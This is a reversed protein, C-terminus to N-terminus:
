FKEMFISENEKFEYHEYGDEALFSCVPALMKLLLLLNHNLVYQCTQREVSDVDYEYLYSKTELDLYQSSFDSVWNMIEDFVKRFNKDEYYKLCRKYTQECSMLALNEKKSLKTDHNKKFGYLNGLLYKITNRLKTYNDSCTKLVNEGVQVDDEYNVFAAWMRLVDTNYKQCVQKPDVVNGLSKSMKKGNQDLVFGHSLLNKYPSKGDLAVSVLLSSQFFGRFQDTGEFYYDAPQNNLVSYFSCGSDFWVDMTHECKLLGRNKWNDPLLEDATKNFWVDAGFKEFLSKLHNLLDKDFVPKNNDLFVALPFGWKRQRSLCWRDRTKLMNTFRTEWRKEMKVGKLVELCDQRVQTLDMFFQETLKYYVPGGTRWDHPYSHEYEESKFLMGKEEMLKVTSKSCVDLCFEGKVKGGNDTLDEGSLGNAKCVNFDEEGHAPCLHVLGTGSDSKVFDDCVVVGVENNLLNTYTWDKMEEGTYSELLEPNDLLHLCNESVYYYENNSFVKLYNLGPNVCVAKNGWTTWPQTTWVLLYAKEHTLEFKFYASLDKRTKYELEFDALVTQSSPSWYVPRWEKFLLNKNGLNYLVELQKAEYEYNMTQYGNNWNALLGLEKFEERQVNTFNNAWEQCKKRLEDTALRGFKKQVGMEIPLGHCDSGVRYEVKKGNMLNYKVMFDKLIKNLAHGIHISQVAKGKSDTQGNSFAPGDHIVFTGENLLSRDELINKWKEVFYPERDKANSRQTFNTKPMNLEKEM